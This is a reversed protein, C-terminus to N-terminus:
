SPEPKALLRAQRAITPAAFLASLPLDVGLRDRLATIVRVAKLSHGGLAFFDDDRGVPGCGLIDTWIAALAQEVPGAPPQTQADQSLLPPPLATRDIKGTVTVPLAAVQILHSPVMYPPLAVALTSRLSATDAAHDAVFWCALADDLPLVVASRIGPQRLV